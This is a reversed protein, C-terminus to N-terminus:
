SSMVPVSGITLELYDSFLPSLDVKKCEQACTKAQLTPTSSPSVPSKTPWSSSAALFHSTLSVTASVEAGPETRERSFVTGGIPRHSSGIM